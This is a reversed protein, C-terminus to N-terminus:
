NDMAKGYERRESRHAPRVSIIRMKNGRLTYVCFYLSEEIPFIVVERIEDLEVRNEPRFYAFDWDADEIDAFDVGHKALNQIRKAEDWEFM